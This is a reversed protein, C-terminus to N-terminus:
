AGTKKKGYAAMSEIEMGEANAIAYMENGFIRKGSKRIRSFRDRRIGAADAIATPRLRRTRIYTNLGERFRNEFDCEM